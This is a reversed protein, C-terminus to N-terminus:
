QRHLATRVRPAVESAFLRIARLAQDHTFGPLRGWFAFQHYPAQRHLSVLREAVQEPAGVLLDERRLDEPRPPDAPPGDHGAVYGAMAGELYAIAPAAQEWARDADEDVHLIGTAVFPFDGDDKGNATLARELLRYREAFDQPRSCYVLLGDAVRVARDIAQKSIAGIYVPVRGAPRPGFPQDPLHWRTGTFGTRGQEWAKRVIALGEELLSPRLRREVGFAEFEQPAYGQGIGLVFRGGALLDVVAADEAMRLPHHLPLPVINTGIRIRSTRAAIAAAVVLPSPLFGDWTLHHESLWVAQYGLTEAEEIQALCEAYYSGYGQSFPARQRFDHLLGFAPTTTTVEDGRM